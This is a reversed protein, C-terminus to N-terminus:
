HVQVVEEKCAASCGDKDANNGDDCEEFDPEWGGDGCHPGLVCGAACEGYGGDNIGDDCAEDDSKIGDGCHPGLQCNAACGGYEGTNKDAGYDCAEEAQKIGDGCHPGLQCDASCQNYGGLNQAEGDDCDEGPGIEADGCKTVCDSSGANFGSLTLQYTSGTKKREAQFVKVEYVNGPELGFDSVTATAPQNRDATGDTGHILDIEGNANLTFRGEVPVHLGGLDVALHGNVFVWMDDDGIFSLQATMGETYEFWYAIESTFYFNRVVGSPDERWGGGYVEEPIAAVDLDASSGMLEEVPFFLPNGDLAVVEGGICWQAANFSCPGCKDQCESELAAFDSACDEDCAAALAELEEIELELEAIREEDPEELAEEQLLERMVQDVLDHSPRCVNNCQLSDGTRQTCTADCTAKSTGYGGQETGPDITTIYPEGDAGYRNVYGGSTNKYLNITDVVEENTSAKTYWEAYSAATGICADEYTNASLVPKRDDSLLSQPIGREITACQVGFDSHKESFDRYIIPLQMSCDDGECEEPQACTFGVEIQCDSSCGDGDRLNGDDCQEDYLTIGDGCSSSCPAGTACVPEARCTPSCGDFPITNGDDCSEAGEATGDGCTTRSCESPEGECKFGDELRCRTDCGDEVRENGDDCGENPDVKGDGCTYVRVCAVGERRCSFGKEVVACTASCGDGANQNGDDCAEGPGIMSDGCVITSVCPQGPAPCSFYPEVICAGSCGDGPLSNGDDCAEPPELNIAGDGCAPPTVVMCNAPANERECPNSVPMPELTVVGENSKGGTGASVSGGTSGAISDDADFDGDSAPSCMTSGLALIVMTPAASFSFRPLRMVSLKGARRASPM